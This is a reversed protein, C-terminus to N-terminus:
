RGLFGGYPSPSSGERTHTRTSRHYTRSYTSNTAWQDGDVVSPNSRNPTTM